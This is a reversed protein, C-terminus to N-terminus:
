DAVPPVHPSHLDFPRAGGLSLDSMQVNGLMIMLNEPDLGIAQQLADALAKFFARKIEIPRERGATVQVFLFDETRPGGGFTPHYILEHPEYQKILQFRDDAPIGYTAVLAEHAAEAIASIQAVSRGSRMSIEVVPM